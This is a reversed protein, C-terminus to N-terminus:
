KQTSTICVSIQGHKKIQPDIQSQYYDVWNNHEKIVLLKGNRKCKLDILAVFATILHVLVLGSVKIQINSLDECETYLKYVIEFHEEKM